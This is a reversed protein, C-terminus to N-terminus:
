EETTAGVSEDALGSHSEEVEAVAEISSDKGTAVLGRSDGPDERCNDRHM